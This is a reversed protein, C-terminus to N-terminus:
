HITIVLIKSGSIINDDNTSASFHSELPDIPLGAKKTLSHFALLVNRLLSSILERRLPFNPEADHRELHERTFKKTQDSQLLVM